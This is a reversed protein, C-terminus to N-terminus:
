VSPATLMQLLAGAKDRQLPGAMCSWQLAQCQSLPHCKLAPAPCPGFRVLRAMHMYAAKAGPSRFLVQGNRSRAQRGSTSPQEDESDSDSGSISSVQLGHLKLRHAPLGM